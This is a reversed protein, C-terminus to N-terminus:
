GSRCHVGERTACLSQSKRITALTDYETVIEGLGDLLHIGQEVYTNLDKETYPNTVLVREREALPMRTMTIAKDWIESQWDFIFVPPHGDEESTIFSHYFPHKTMPPPCGDWSRRWHMIQDKGMEEEAAEKSLGVLSGYHRENLRWTHVVPVPKQAKIEEVLKEFTDISRDLVSTYIADFTMGLKNLCRGAAAAQLKGTDSMPINAWGTFRTMRNESENTINWLSEGHRVFVLRGARINLKKGLM